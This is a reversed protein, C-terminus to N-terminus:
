DLLGESVVYGYLIFELEALEGSYTSHHITISYDAEGEGVAIYVGGDYVMLRDDFEWKELCLADHCDLARM